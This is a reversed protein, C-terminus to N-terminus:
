AEVGRQEIALIQGDTTPFTCNCFFGGDLDKLILPADTHQDVISIKANLIVVAKGALLRILRYRFNAVGSANSYNSIKM